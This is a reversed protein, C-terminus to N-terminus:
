VGNRATEQEESTVTGDKNLDMRDFRAIAGGNYEGLTVEGDANKDYGAIRSDARPWENRSLKDDGNRDLARFRREAAAGFDLRSTVQPPTFGSAAAKADAAARKKESQGCAALAALGLALAVLRVM